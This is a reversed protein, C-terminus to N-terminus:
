KWTNNVILCGEKAASIDQGKKDWAAQLQLKAVDAAMDKIFGPNKLRGISDRISTACELVSELPNDSKPLQLHAPLWVIANVVAQDPYIGM